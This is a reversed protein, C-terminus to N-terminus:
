KVEEWTTVYERKPYVEVPAGLGFWEEGDYSNFRGTERYFNNDVKFIVTLIAPAEEEYSDESDDNVVRNNEVIEFEMDGFTRTFGIDHNSEIFDRYEDNKNLNLKYLEEKNM